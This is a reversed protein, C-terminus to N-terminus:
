ADRTFPMALAALDVGLARSLAVVTSIRPDRITGTELNHVGVASVGAARALKGQTLGAAQRHERILDAFTSL